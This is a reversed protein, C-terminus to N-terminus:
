IIGGIFLNYFILPIFFALENLKILHPRLKPDEDAAIWVAMKCIYFLLLFGGVFTVLGILTLAEDMAWVYIFFFAASPIAKKMKFQFLIAFPALIMFAILINGTFLEVFWAVNLNLLNYIFEVFM